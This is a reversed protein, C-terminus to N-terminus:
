FDFGGVFVDGLGHLLLLGNTTPNAPHDTGPAGLVVLGGSVVLTAAMSRITLGPPNRPTWRRSMHWSSGGAARFEYLRGTGSSGDVAAGPASVLLDNGVFLVRGGFRAFNMTDDADGDWVVDAPQLDGNGDRCYIFVANKDWIQLVLRLLKGNFALCRQDASYALTSGIFATDASGSLSGGEQWVGGRRNFVSLVSGNVESGRRRVVLQDDALAISQGVADGDQAAAPLLTAERSWVGAGDQRYVHVRGRLYGPFGPGYEMPEGVALIDGSTALNFGFHATMGAPATQELTQTLQWTQDPQRRFVFVHGGPGFPAKNYSTLAIFLSAGDASFALGMAGFSLARNLGLNEPSIIQALDLRTGSRRYLRVRGHDTDLPSVHFAWYTAVWDESAAINSGFGPNELATEVGVYGRTGALVPTVQAHASMCLASLLPSMAVAM